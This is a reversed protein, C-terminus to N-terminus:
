NNKERIWRENTKKYIFAEKLPLFFRYGTELEQYGKSYITNIRRSFPVNKLKALNFVIATEGNDLFNIYLPIRNNVTYELLMTSFKHADIVLTTDKFKKGVIEGKNYTAERLKLEMAIYDGTTTVGSADFHHKQPTQGLEELKLFENLSELYKFDNEENKEFFEKDM